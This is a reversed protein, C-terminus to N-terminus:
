AQARADWALVAAFSVIASDFKRELLRHQLLEVAFLLVAHDLSVLHRTNDAEQDEQEQQQEEDEEKDEVEEEEDEEQEEDVKKEEEKEKKEDEKKEKKEDEKEEEKKKKEQEEEQVVLEEVKGELQTVSSTAATAGSASVAVSTGGLVTAGGKKPVPMAVDFTRVPAPAPPPPTWTVAGPNFSFEKAQASLPKEVCFLCM